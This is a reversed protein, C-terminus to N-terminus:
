LQKDASSKCFSTQVKDHLFGLSLYFDSILNQILFSKRLARAFFYLASRLAHAKYSCVLHLDNFPQKM